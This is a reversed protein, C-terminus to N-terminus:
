RYDEWQLSFEDRLRVWEILMDLSDELLQEWICTVMHSRCLIALSKTKSYSVIDCQAIISDLTELVSAYNQLKIQKRLEICSNLLHNLSISSPQM